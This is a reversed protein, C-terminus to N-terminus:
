RAPRELRRPAPPVPAFVPAPHSVAVREARDMPASTVLTPIGPLGRALREANAARVLAMYDQAPMENPARTYSVTTQTTRTFAIPQRSVLFEPAISV